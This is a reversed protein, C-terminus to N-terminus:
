DLLDHLTPQARNQPPSNPKPQAAPHSPPAAAAAAATPKPLSEPPSPPSPPAPVAATADGAARTAAEQVAPATPTDRHLPGVLADARAKDEQSIAEKDTAAAGTPGSPAPGAMNASHSFRGLKQALLVGSGVAILIVAIVAWRIWPRGGAIPETPFAPM